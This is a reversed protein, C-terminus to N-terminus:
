SRELDGGRGVRVGLVGLLDGELALEESSEGRKRSRTGDGKSTLQGDAIAVARAVEADNAAGPGDLVILDEDTLDAGAIESGELSAEEAATVEGVVLVRGM